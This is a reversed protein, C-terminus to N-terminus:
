PSPDSCNDADPRSQAKLAAVGDALVKCLMQPMADGKVHHGLWECQMCCVAQMKGQCALLTTGTRGFEIKERCNPTILCIFGECKRCQTVSIVGEPNVSWCLGYM